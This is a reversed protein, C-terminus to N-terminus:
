VAAEASAAAEAVVPANAAAEAVVPANAAARAQYQAFAEKEADTLPRLAEPAPKIGNATDLEQHLHQYGSGVADIVKHLVKLTEVDLAM